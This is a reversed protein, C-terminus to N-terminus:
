RNFKTLSYEGTGKREILRMVLFNAPLYRPLVFSVNPPCSRSAVLSQIQHHECDVQSHRTTARSPTEDTAGMQLPGHM